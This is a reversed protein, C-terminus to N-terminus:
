SRERERRLITRYQHLFMAEARIPPHPTVPFEAPAITADRVWTYRYNDTAGDGAGMLDRKEALLMQSDARKIEPPLPNPLSFKIAIASWLRAEMERFFDGLCTSHKVPSPLDVLYAETADHLLGCLALESPVLESVHVSHQAVSYFESTHGTFRGQCSLAHAIDVIDVSAPDPELVDFMKGTFTRIRAESM